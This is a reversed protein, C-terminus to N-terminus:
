YRLLSNGYHDTLPVNNVDLLRPDGGYYYVDPLDAEQARIFRSQVDNSVLISESQTFVSGTKQVLEVYVGPEVDINLVLSQTATIINFEPDFTVLETSTNSVYGQYAAKRLPRGGYYVLIQDAAHVPDDNTGTNLTIGYGSATTTLTSIIYTNTATTLFHQVYHSDSYPITQLIGQDIVKTGEDIYFAPGTGLTGRRLDLLENYDRSFFEVRERDILAIGPINKAPNFPSLRSSDFVKISTDSYKLPEILFTTHYASLRKFHVRDFFDKFIRYAYVKNMYQPNQISTVMVTPSGTIVLDESLRIIQQDSLLEYDFRHVLPVGDLYVWVFNDDIVPYRLKFRRLSNYGFVENNMYLSDHNNFTTIKVTNNSYPQRFRLVNGSIVYDYQSGGLCVVSIYTGDPYLNPVLEITKNTLDFNFDYGPRIETGNAYVFIDKATITSLYGTTTSRNDLAFVRNNNEKTYNSTYPPTLRRRDTSVSSTSIEVIAKDSYPQWSGPVFNLIISTTSASITRTEVNMKNFKVNPTNFFWAQILSSTTINSVKVTARYNDTFNRELVYSTSPVEQGDILVYVSRVDEFRALSDVFAVTATTPAYTSNSDILGIGGIKVYTYGGVGSTPQPPLVIDRGTVFFQNGTMTSLTTVRNFNKGNYYVMIGSYEDPYAGITATTIKNATVGFAGSIVTAYSDVDKTYVNIGLSDVTHGPVMEEPAYSVSPSMFSDGDLLIEEPNVGMADVAVGNSWTGGTIATDIAAPDFDNNWFEIGPNTFVTASVIYCTNSFLNNIKFLARGPVVTDSLVQYYIDGPTATTLVLVNNLYITQTSIESLPNDTVVIVSGSTNIYDLIKM